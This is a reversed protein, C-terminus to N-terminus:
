ISLSFIFKSFVLLPLIELACLYSFYNFLDSIKDRLGIVIVIIIDIVYLGFFFYLSYIPEFSYQLDTFRFIILFLLSLIYYYFHIFSEQTILKVFGNYGYYTTCWALKLVFKLLSFVILVFFTFFYLSLSNPLYALFEDKILPMLILSMLMILSQNSILLVFSTNISDTTERKLFSNYEFRFLYKAVIHLILSILIVVWYLDNSSVSRIISSEM